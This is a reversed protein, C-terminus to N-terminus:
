KFFLKKSPFVSILIYIAESECYCTVHEASIKLIISAQSLQLIYIDSFLDLVPIIWAFAKTKKYMNKVGKECEKM